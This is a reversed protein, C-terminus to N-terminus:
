RLLIEGGVILLLLIVLPIYEWKFKITDSGASSYTPVEPRERDERRDVRNLFYVFAAALGAYIVAMIVAWLISRAFVAYIVGKIAGLLLAAIYPSIKKKKAGFVLFLLAINLLM